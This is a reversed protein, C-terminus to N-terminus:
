EFPMVARRPPPLGCSRPSSSPTTPVASTRTGLGSSASGDAYMELTHTSTSLRRRPTADMSSSLHKSTAAAHPSSSTRHQREDGDRITRIQGRVRQTHETYIIVAGRDGDERLNPCVLQLSIIHHLFLALKFGQAIEVECGTEISSSILGAQPSYPALRIQM